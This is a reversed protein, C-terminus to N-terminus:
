RVSFNQLVKLKEEYMKSKELDGTQKYYYVLGSVIQLDGKFNKYAEELVEIARKPDKDGLSIAYVYLLGHM